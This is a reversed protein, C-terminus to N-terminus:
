PQIKLNIKTQFSACQMQSAFVWSFSCWKLGSVGTRVFLFVFVCNLDNVRLWFPRPAPSTRRSQKPNMICSHIVAFLSGKTGSTGRRRVHKRFNGLSEEPNTELRMPAKSCLFCQWGCGRRHFRSKLASLLSVLSLIDEQETFLGSIPFPIPVNQSDDWQSMAGPM